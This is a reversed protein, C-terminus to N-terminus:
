LVQLHQYSLEMQDPIEQDMELHNHDQVVAEEELLDEQVVMDEAMVLNIELMMLTLDELEARLLLPLFFVVGVMEEV